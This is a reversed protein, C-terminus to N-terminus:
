IKYLQDAVVPSWRHAVGFKGKLIRPRSQAADRLLVGPIERARTAPPIVEEGWSVAPPAVLTIVARIAVFASEPVLGPSLGVVQMAPPQTIYYLLIVQGCGLWEVGPVIAHHLVDTIVSARGRLVGIVEEDSAVQRWGVPGVLAIRLWKLHHRKRVQPEIGDLADLLLPLALRAVCRPPCQAGCM